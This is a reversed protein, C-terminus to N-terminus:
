VIELPLMVRHSEAGANKVTFISIIIICSKPYHVIYHRPLTFDTYCYLVLPIHKKPHNATEETFFVFTQEVMQNPQFRYRFEPVYRFRPWLKAENKIVM